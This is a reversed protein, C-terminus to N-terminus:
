VSLNSLASITSIKTRSVTLSPIMDSGAFSLVGGVSEESLHESGWILGTSRDVWFFCTM